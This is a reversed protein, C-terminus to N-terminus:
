LSGGPVRAVISTAARSETAGPHERLIREGVRRFSRILERTLHDPVPPRPRPEFAGRMSNGIAVRADHITVREEVTLVRSCYHLLFRGLFEAEDYEPAM